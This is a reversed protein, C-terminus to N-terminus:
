LDGVEGANSGYSSCDVEREREAAVRQAGLWLELFATELCEAHAILRVGEKHAAAVFM